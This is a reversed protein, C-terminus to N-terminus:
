SYSLSFHWHASSEEIPRAPNSGAVKPNFTSTLSKHSILCCIDFVRGRLRRTIERLSGVLEDEPATVLRPQFATAGGALLAEGARRYAAAIRGDAIEV